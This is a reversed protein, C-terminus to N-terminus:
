GAREATGVGTQSGPVPGGWGRNRSTPASAAPSWSAPSPAPPGPVRRCPPSRGPGWGWVGFPRPGGKQREACPAGRGAESGGGPFSGSAQRSDAPGLGAPSAWRDGLRSLIGPDCPTGEGWKLRHFGVGLVERTVTNPSPAKVLYDPYLASQSNPGLGARCHGCSLLPGVPSLSLCRSSGTLVCPSSLRRGASPSAESFGGRTVRQGRGQPRWFRSLLLTGVGWRPSPSPAGPRRGGQLLVARPGEAGQDETSRLRKDSRVSSEEARVCAGKM